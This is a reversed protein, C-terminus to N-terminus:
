LSVGFDYANKLEEENDRIDGKEYAAALVEGISEMGLYDFSMRFMEVLPGCATPGEAAPTVVVAKKGRLKGNAGFPRMRDMFLKMKGTPGYWYNPTSFIILDAEEMKPYLEQMGDKITCALDKKKCDRCDICPSIEYDYLYLKDSTHGKSKSGKLIQEVLTDTNGGKRPSGILALIKMNFGGRFDRKVEENSPLLKQFDLFDLLRGEIELHM